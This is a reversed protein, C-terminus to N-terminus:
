PQRGPGPQHHPRDEIKRFVLMQRKLLLLYCGAAPLYPFGSPLADQAATRHDFPGATRCHAARRNVTRGDPM